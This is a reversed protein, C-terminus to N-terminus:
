WVNDECGAEIPPALHENYDFRENLLFVARVGQQHAHSCIDYFAKHKMVPLAIHAM